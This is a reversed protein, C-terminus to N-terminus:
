FVQRLLVGGLVSPSCRACACADAAAGGEAQFPGMQTTRESESIHLGPTKNAQTGGPKGKGRLGAPRAKVCVRVRELERGAM